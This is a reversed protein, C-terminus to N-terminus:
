FHWFINRSCKSFLTKLYYRKEIILFQRNEFIKQFINGFYNKQNKPLKLSPGCNQICPLIKMISAKLIVSNYVNSFKPNAWNAVYINFVTAFHDMTPIKM